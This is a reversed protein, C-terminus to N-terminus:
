QPLADFVRWTGPIGKLVHEGRDEFALGSGAVLDKVTQSVLVQSPDAMGGIRAGISVAIGRVMNGMTSEVEGTHLGLEAAKETSGVIDTFLTARSRGRFFRSDAYSLSGQWGSGRASTRQTASV